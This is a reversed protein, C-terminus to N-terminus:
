SNTNHSYELSTYKHTQLHLFYYNYLRNSVHEHTILLNDLLLWVILYGLILAM